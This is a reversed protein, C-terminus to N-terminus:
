AIMAGTFDPYEPKPEFGHGAGPVRILGVPVNAAKLARELIESQAFPVVDDKDGHVLLHPAASPSIYHVPSASDRICM